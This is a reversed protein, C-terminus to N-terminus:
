RSSRGRRAILGAAIGLGALLAAAPEPVAGAAVTASGSGFQKQWTLFDAGDVDGDADADGDARV